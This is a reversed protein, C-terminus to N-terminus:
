AASFVVPYIITDTNTRTIREVHFFPQDTSTPIKNFAKTTKGGHLM